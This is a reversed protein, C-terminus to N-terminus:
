VAGPIVDLTPGGAGVQAEPVPVAARLVCHRLAGRELAGLLVVNVQVVVVRVADGALALARGVLEWLVLQALCGQEAQFASAFRRHLVM